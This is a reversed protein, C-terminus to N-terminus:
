DVWAVIRDYLSKPKCDETALSVVNAESKMLTFRGSTRNFTFDGGDQWAVEGEGIAVNKYVGSRSGATLTVTKNPLDIDLGGAMTQVTSPSVCVYHEVAHARTSTVFWVAAGAVVLVVVAIITNKM